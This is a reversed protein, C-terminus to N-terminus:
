LMSFALSDIRVLLQVEIQWANMCICGQDEITEDCVIVEAAVM